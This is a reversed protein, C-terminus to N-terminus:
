RGSCGTDDLDRHHGGQASGTVGCSGSTRRLRWALLSVRGRHKKGARLRASAGWQKQFQEMADADVVAGGPAFQHVHVNFM